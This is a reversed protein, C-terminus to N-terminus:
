IPLIPLSKWIMGSFTYANLMLGSICPTPYYMSNSITYSCLNFHTCTCSAGPLTAVHMLPYLTRAYTPACLTSSAMQYLAIPFTHLHRPLTTKNHVTPMHNSHSIQYLWNISFLVIRKVKPISLSMIEIKMRVQMRILM